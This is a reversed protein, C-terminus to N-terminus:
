RSPSEYRFEDLRDDSENIYSIEVLRVEPNVVASMYFLVAAEFTDIAYMRMDGNLYYVRAERM